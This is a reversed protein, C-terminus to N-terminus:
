VRDAIAVVGQPVSVVKGSPTKLKVSSRTVGVVKCVGYRCDVCDGISVTNGNYDTLM